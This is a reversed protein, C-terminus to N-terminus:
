INDSIGFVIDVFDIENIPCPEKFARLGKEWGGKVTAAPSLAASCSNIRWSVIEFELADPDKHDITPMLAYQGEFMEPADEPSKRNAGVWTGVLEWALKEGTFPDYEGASVVALHILAKYLKINSQSAYPRKRKRDKRLCGVARGDLWKAYQGPTVRGKLFSPLPYLSM